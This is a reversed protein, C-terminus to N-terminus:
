LFPLVASLTHEGGGVEAKLSAICPQCCLGDPVREGSDPSLRVTSRVGM